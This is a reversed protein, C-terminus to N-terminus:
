PKPGKATLIKDEEIERTRCEPCLGLYSTSGHDPEYCIETWGVAVAAERTALGDGADCVMCSLVFPCPVMILDSAPPSAVYPSCRGELLGIYIMDVEGPATAELAYTWGFLTKSTNRIEKM